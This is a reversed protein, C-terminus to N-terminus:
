REESDREAAAAVASLISAAYAVGDAVKLPNPVCTTFLEPGFGRDEIRIKAQKASPSDSSLAVPVLSDGYEDVEVAPLGVVAYGNAKLAALIARIHLRVAIGGAADWNRQTIWSREDSRLSAALARTMVDEASEEENGSM